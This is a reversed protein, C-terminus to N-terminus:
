NFSRVKLFLKDKRLLLYQTILGTFAGTIIGSIILPIIYWIIATTKTLFVAVAIQGANHFLAGIVSLIWLQNTKFFKFIIVEAIFCMIGGSLSYFFSVTSGGIFAGLAIRLLLVLLTEKKTLLNLSLLTIINALGLKMGPIPTLPPILNELFHLSLSIALLLSLFTLKKTRM